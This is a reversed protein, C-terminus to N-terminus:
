QIITGINRAMAEMVGTMFVAQEETSDMLIEQVKAVCNGKLTRGNDMVVMGAGLIQMMKRYTNIGPQRAGSEIKKLHSDSIGAAEALEIRTMGRMRRLMGIEKGMDTYGSDMM